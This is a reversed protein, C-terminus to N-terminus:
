HHKLCSKKQSRKNELIQNAWMKVKQQCCTHSSLHPRAQIAVHIHEITNKTSEPPPNGLTTISGNENQHKLYRNYMNVQFPAEYWHGGRGEDDM